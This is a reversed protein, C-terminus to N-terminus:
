NQDMKVILIWHKRILFVEKTSRAHYVASNHSTSVVLRDRNEWDPYKPDINM